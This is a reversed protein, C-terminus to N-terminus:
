NSTRNGLNPGPRASKRAIFDEILEFVRDNWEMRTIAAKYNELDKKFAILKDVTLREAYSGYGMREINYANYFQEFHKEIPIALVPKKLYLAESLTTFGGNIIVFRCSSLDNLFSRENFDRFHLNNRTREHMGYIRFEDQVQSLVELMKSNTPSTQYVLIFDGETTQLEKVSRRVIPCVIETRVTKPVVDAFSPIIYEDSSPHLSKIVPRLYWPAERSCTYECETQFHINDISLCPYGFLRAYYHSASEFDSIFIDPRFRKILPLLLFSNKIIKFPADSVFRMLSKAEHIANNQYILVNGWISHVNDFKRNLYKYARNSTTILIEHRKKLEEILAESRVAHGLGEGSIGYWIRAM